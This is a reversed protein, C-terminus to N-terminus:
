RRHRRWGPGERVALGELELMGLDALVAAVSMGAVRAVSEPPAPRVVPLADLVRRAGEDLDDTEAPVVVREPALDRGAEGALEAVEAADTVCVAAGERLLRHCGASAMSTVPGPVAGVPRLLRGAHGATNLAGSRWAAEVVVTAGGAAAILRNRQLFRSRSPVGGPPVESVVSGGSELVRALLTANGAPYPRDVGGALFVVTQGGVALAGRHAAADIGYAGGSVIAFRRDALGAALEAAVHEGYGTAARSGVLSVSRPLRADLGAAGRVWLCPPAAAGLDDLAAPWGAIGPHVVVGGLQALAGLDRRPELGELRPAWRALGAALRRRDSEGLPGAREIMEGLARATLSSGTRRVWDLAGAGGLAAIVAGAVADGPEVLRSWGARAVTEGDPDAPGQDGVGNPRGTM